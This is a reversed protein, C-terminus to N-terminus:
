SVSRTPLRDGRKMSFLGYLSVPYAIPSFNTVELTRSITQGARLQDIIYVSARPNGRESVPAQTLAIGIRGPVPNGTAAAAPLGAPALLFTLIASLSAAPSMSAAKGFRV